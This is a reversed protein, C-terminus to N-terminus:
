AAMVLPLCTVHIGDYPGSIRAARGVAEDDDRVFFIAAGEDRWGEAATTSLRGESSLYSCQDLAPM